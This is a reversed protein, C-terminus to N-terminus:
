REVPSLWSLLFIVTRNWQAFDASEEEFNHRNVDLFFVFTVISKMIM